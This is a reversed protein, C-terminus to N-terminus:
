TDRSAAGSSLFAMPYYYRVFPPLPLLNPVYSRSVVPAREHPVTWSGPVVFHSGLVCSGSGIRILQLRLPSDSISQSDSSLIILNQMKLVRHDSSYPTKGYYSLSCVRHASYTPSPANQVILIYDECNLHM